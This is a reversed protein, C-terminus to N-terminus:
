RIGLANRGGQEIAGAAATYLSRSVYSRVQSARQRLLAAKCARARALTPSDGDATALVDIVHLALQTEGRAALSEAHRILADHDTVAAAIEAAARDPACPHLSTPNRDWWGNESRYIDRAIYSPDGYAPRMWPQEFLEPPLELRALVEREGCGENMLRVVEARLWRLARATQTLVQRCQAEGELAAGFERIVTRPALAALRELTDAWRVTDRLTRLPTGINPISDIVAPGGYLLRQEPLWVAVADDTESPAWLIEVRRPGSGLVLSDTFTEGPAPSVLRGALAGAPHRFQIEAMREQLGMTELYRARRAPVNAHAIVRPPPDARQAAHALWESLGANYGLHGHSFCIAALPLATHERLASIMGRTVKGGPGADVLLLAGGIDAVFSQGQGHLLWVGDAIAECGTGTILADARNKIDQM